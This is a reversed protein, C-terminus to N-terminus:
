HCAMLEQEDHIPSPQFISVAGDSETGVAGIGILALYINLVCATQNSAALKHALLSVDHQLCLCIYLLWVYTSDFLFVLFYPPFAPLSSFANWQQLCCNKSFVPGSAAAWFTCVKCTGLLVHCYSLLFPLLLAFSLSVTGMNCAFWSFSDRISPLMM